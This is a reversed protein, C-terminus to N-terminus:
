VNRIHATFQLDRKELNPIQLRTDTAGCLFTATSPHERQRAEIENNIDERHITGRPFQNRLARLETISQAQITTSM